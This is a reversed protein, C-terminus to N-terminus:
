LLDKIAEVDENSLYGFGARLASYFDLHLDDGKSQFSLADPRYPGSTVTITKHKFTGGEREKSLIWHEVLREFYHDYDSLIILQPVSM